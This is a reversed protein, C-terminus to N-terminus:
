LQNRGYSCLGAGLISSGGPSTFLSVVDASTNIDDPNVYGAHATDIVYPNVYRLDATFSIRQLRGGALICISSHAHKDICIHIFTQRVVSTM